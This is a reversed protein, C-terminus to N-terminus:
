SLSRFRFSPFRELHTYSVPRHRGVAPSARRNPSVNIKEKVRHPATLISDGLLLADGATPRCLCSLMKITTSKGAGNVGLLGFLEGERIDLTLHDVATHQEYVKTLARIELANM